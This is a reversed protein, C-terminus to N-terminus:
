SLAQIDAQASAFAAARNGRQRSGRQMKSVVEDFTAVGDVMGASVAADALLMRGEGMGGRVQDVPVGRGKAVAQTFMRYYSDIQTQTEARAEDGLPAFPNGEVKYKGASILTVEIGQAELAKAVNEHATYVGISGVMGGPTVYAESCQSLLWYAASAAMSDAHGVIPKQSRLSRIKDGLEQIGFVSGGPSDFQLLVQSISSDAVAADLAAGIEQAGTGGECMGLQAARQVITGYVPIVAIGGGARQQQGRAAKPQREQHADEGAMPGASKAAYAQALLGAYVQMAAPDMAWPTRLCYALFYPLKM